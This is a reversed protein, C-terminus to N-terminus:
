FGHDQRVNHRPTALTRRSEETLIGSNAAVLRSYAGLGLSASPAPAPLQAMSPQPAMPPPAIADRLRVLWGYVEQDGSFVRQLRNDRLAVPLCQALAMRLRRDAALHEFCSIIFNLLRKARDPAHSRRTIYTLSSNLAVVIDSFVARRSSVVSLIFDSRLLLSLLITAM